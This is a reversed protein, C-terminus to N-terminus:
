LEILISKLQKIEDRLEIAKEFNLDIAYHNMKESLESIKSKIKDLTLNRTVPLSSNEGLIAKKLMEIDTFISDKSKTIGRPTINHKLNHQHQIDRRRHTESM